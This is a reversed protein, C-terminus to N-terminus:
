RTMLAETLVRGDTKALPLKAVAALTAAIDVPTALGPYRGPKINGGFFALPVERDYPYPSGHTTGTAVAM